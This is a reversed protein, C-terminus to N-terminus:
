CQTRRCDRSLAVFDEGDVGSPGDDLSPEVTLYGLAENSGTVIRNQALLRDVVALTMGCVPRGRWMPWALVDIQNRPRKRVAGTGCKSLALSIARWAVRGQERGPAVLQGKSYLQWRCSIIERHSGMCNQAQFPPLSTSRGAVSWALVGRVDRVDSVIPM